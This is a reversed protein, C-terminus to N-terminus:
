GVWDQVKWIIRNFMYKVKNMLTNKIYKGMKDKPQM